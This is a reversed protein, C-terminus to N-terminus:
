ISCNSSTSCKFSIMFESLNINNKKGWKALRTMLDFTVVMCSKKSSRGEVKLDMTRFCPALLQIVGFLPLSFNSSLSLYPPEFLASFLPLSFNPQLSLSLHLNLCPVLCSLFDPINSNPQKTHLFESDTNVMRFITGLKDARPEPFTWYRPPFISM